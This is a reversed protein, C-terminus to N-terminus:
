QFGYELLTRIFAPQRSPGFAKVLGVDEEARFNLAMVVRGGRGEARERSMALSGGPETALPAQLGVANM